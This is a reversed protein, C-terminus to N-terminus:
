TRDDGPRDNEPKGHIQDLLALVKTAKVTTTDLRFSLQPTFKMQLRKGLEGRIFGAASNLGKLCEKPGNEEGYVSVFVKANKLDPSVMVATVTVFGIRPDKVKRSLIDAIEHQILDGVRETRSYEM